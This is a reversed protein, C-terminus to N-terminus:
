KPQFSNLLNAEHMRTEISIRRPAISDNLYKEIILSAIPAAYRAGWVGNEVYVSIAIQPDEKPAFAIFVSHDSGHPNQVTGTKGCIIISDLKSYYRTNSEEVVAQMGETVVEFHEPDITTVHREFNQDKPEDEISWVSKVFHPTIYYGRNAITAAMNALQFPTILLEGQGIAMSRITLGNWHGEGYYHNYYGVEPINGPLENSLETGLRQSLGCSILHERWVKYGEDARPYKRMISNFTNWFFPNCSERIANRVSIPSLHNHTCRIPRSLPGNCSFQTQLNITNEQLAILANFLKFTSGPPYAARIARNFIPKLTDQALKQYNTGRARGVLLSPDYTPASLFALVEGTAPEIAVVSGKKNDMLYEAYAQLDADLTTILNKGLVALTDSKGDRYNGKIRNHVDVLQFNVGKQGRLEEEYAKELGTIGIYDGQTYYPDEQIKSRNVEGVYGLVHAATKEPYERLTRTQVFFGPFRFLKEQLVAYSEPSLQKIIVSPKYRSYKKAKDLGAILEEKQIELIECFATTDFASVERPTVLLDYSAKNYVLLDGNRDYILGRAPYTVIRRLVNRTAYQKYDNNVVQLRFLRVSFVLAVLIFIAGILYKRKSYNDV